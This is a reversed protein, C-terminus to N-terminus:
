FFAKPLRSKWAPLSVLKSFKDLDDVTIQSSRTITLIAQKIAYQAIGGSSYLSHTLDFYVCDPFGLVEAVDDAFLVGHAVYKIGSSKEYKELAGSDGAAHAQRLITVINRAQEQTRHDIKQYCPSAVHCYGSDDEFPKRRGICNNCHPCPNLGSPGKLSWNQIHADTDQPSFAYKMRLTFTESGHRLLIGTYAFNRDVHLFLDRIIAAVMCPDDVDMNGM